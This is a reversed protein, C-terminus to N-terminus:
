RVNVTKSHMLIFVKGKIMKKKAITAKGGVHVADRVATKVSAM